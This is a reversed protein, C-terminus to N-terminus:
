KKKNNLYNTLEKGLAEKLVPDTEALYAEHLTKAYDDLVLEDDSGFDFINTNHQLSTSRNNDVRWVDSSQTPQDLDDDSTNSPDSDSTANAIAIEDVQTTSHAPENAEGSIGTSGLQQSVHPGAQTGKTGARTAGALDAAAGGICRDMDLLMQAIIRAKTREPDAALQRSDIPAVHIECPDSVKDAEDSQQAEVFTSAAIIFVLSTIGVHTRRNFQSTMDYVSIDARCM